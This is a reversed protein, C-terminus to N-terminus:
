LNKFNEIYNDIVDIILHDKRRHLYAHHTPCLPILNEKSNNNRDKDLHHVDIVENEDCIICNTGHYEKCTSIYGKSDDKWRPHNIGQNSIIKSCSKSCTNNKYNIMIKECVPCEKKNNPNLYCSNQHARINSITIEKNCYICTKKIISPDFNKWSKRKRAKKVGESNRKRIFSCKNYKEECCYRGNKLQFKAEKNCGYECKM